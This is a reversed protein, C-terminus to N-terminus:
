TTQSLNPWMGIRELGYSEQGEMEATAQRWAVGSVDKEKLANVEGTITDLFRAAESAEMGSLFRALTKLVGRTAVFILIDNRNARM